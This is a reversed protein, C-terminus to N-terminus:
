LMKREFDIFIPKEAAAVTVGEASNKRMVLRGGSSKVASRECVNDTGVTKKVFESATFNGQLESLEEATFYEATLGKAECYEALGKEDAKVDVTAINCVRKESIGGSILSESIRRGITGCPVGRKFGVGVVINKPVLNLTEPFPKKNFDGSICMGIRYKKDSIVDPINRCPYDSVLGIKEGDLVAVAIKKAIEMDSIILNNAIAFSDPSFKGGTDTATTIVATAGIKEAVIEALRNAGGLHGSLVPIVFKGCEDAVIVAPDSIKSVAHKAVARVAIGCACVFILADSDSFIEETLAYISGFKRSFGDSHSSFCYRIVAHNPSLFDAMRASLIRGRETLSIISIKM